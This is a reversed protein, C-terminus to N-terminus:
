MLSRWVWQAVLTFGLLCAIVTSLTVPAWQHLQRRIRWIQGLRYPVQIAVVLFFLYGGPNFAWARAFKGHMLSIFCRTLGCGPCDVGTVLRFVCSEPLPIGLGPVIVRGDRSVRLVLALILVIISLILYVLHYSADGNSTPKMQDARGPESNKM